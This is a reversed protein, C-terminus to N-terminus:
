GDISLKFRTMSPFFNKDVVFRPYCCTKRFGGRSNSNKNLSHCRLMEELEKTIDQSLKQNNM